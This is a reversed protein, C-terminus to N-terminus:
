SGAGDPECEGRFYAWEECESGDAFICFGLEGGDEDARLELRGDQEICYESAPNTLGPEPVQEETAGGMCAALMTALLLVLLGFLSHVAVRPMGPSMTAARM